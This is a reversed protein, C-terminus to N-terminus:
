IKGFVILAQGFFWFYFIIVRPQFHRVQAAVKHSMKLRPNMM